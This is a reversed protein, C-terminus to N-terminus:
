ASKIDPTFESIRKVARSLSVSNDKANALKWNTAVFATLLGNYDRGIKATSFPLPAIGERITRKRSKRALNILFQKPDELEDPRQPIKQKAVSLYSAINTRDALVWSEVERVAVRFLMNRHLPASLWSNLLAKPCSYEDLDTLVLYPMGGATKNFGNITRKIYGFGELGLTTAVKLNSKSQVLVQVLLAESLTDEVILNIDVTTM